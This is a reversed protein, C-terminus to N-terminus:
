LWHWRIDAARRRETLWEAYAAQAAAALAQPDDPRPAVRGLVVGALLGDEGDVPGVVRGTSAARLPEPLESAHGTVMTLRLRGNGGRIAEEAQLLFVAASDARAIEEIATADRGTIWAARIECFEKLHSTLY